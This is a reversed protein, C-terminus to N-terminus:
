DQEFKYGETIREGSNRILILNLRLRISNFFFDIVSTARVRATPLGFSRLNM